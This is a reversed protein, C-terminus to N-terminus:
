YLVVQCLWSVKFKMAYANGLVTQIKQFSSATFGCLRFVIIGVKNFVLLFIGGKTRNNIDTMTGNRKAVFIFNM